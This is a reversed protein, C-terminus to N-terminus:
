IETLAPYEVERLLIFRQANQAWSLKKDPAEM